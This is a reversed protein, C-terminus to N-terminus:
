ASVPRAGRLTSWADVRLKAAVDREIALEVHDCLVVTMPEQAVVTVLHGPVLGYAALLERFSSALSPEPEALRATTGAPVRDLAIV